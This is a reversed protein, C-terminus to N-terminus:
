SIAGNLPCIHSKYISLLLMYYTCNKTNYKKCLFSYKKRAQNDVDVEFLVCDQQNRIFGEAMPWNTSSLVCPQQTLTWNSSSPSSPILTHNLGKSSPFQPGEQTKASYSSRPSQLRKLCSAPDNSAHFPARLSDKRQGRREYTRFRWRM